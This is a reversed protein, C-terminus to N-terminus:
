YAGITSCASCLVTTGLKYNRLFKARVSVPIPALPAAVKSGVAAKNHYLLTSKM